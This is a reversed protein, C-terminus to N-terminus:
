YAFRHDDIVVAVERTRIWRDNSIRPNFFYLAGHTPDEGNLAATAAKYADESPKTRYIRGNAVPSFQYVRGIKQFIVDQINDPFWEYDVRNMVVSGVAVKGEYSQNGAETEIIRALWEYDEDTYSIRKSKVTSAIQRVSRFESTQISKNKDAIVIDQQIPSPINIIQKIHIIDTSLNNLGKISLVSTEFRNALLWLSDGRQVVYRISSDNETTSPLKLEQGIHIVHDKINNLQQLTKVKIRYTESISWLTDGRKVTYTDTSATATQSFSTFVLVLLVFCLSMLSLKM